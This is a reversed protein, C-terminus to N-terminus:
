TYRYYSQSLQYSMPLIPLARNKKPGLPQHVRRRNVLGRKRCQIFVKCLLEQNYKSYLQFTQSFVCQYDSTQTHKTDAFTLTVVHKSAKLMM